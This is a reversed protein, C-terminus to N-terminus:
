KKKYEIHNNICLITIFLVYFLMFLVMASVDKYLTASSTSHGFRGTGKSYEYLVSGELHILSWVRLDSVSNQRVESKFNNLLHGVFDDWTPTLTEVRLYNFQLCSVDGFEALWYIQAYLFMRIKNFSFYILSICYPFCLYTLPQWPRYICYYGHIFHILMCYGHKIHM